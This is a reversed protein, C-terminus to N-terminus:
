SYQPLKRPLRQALRTRCSTPDTDQTANSYFEIFHPSLCGQVVLTRCMRVDNATAASDYETFGPDTCGIITEADHDRQVFNGCKSSVPAFGLLYKERDFSTDAFRTALTM